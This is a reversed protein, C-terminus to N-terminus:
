FPQPMCSTVSAGLILNVVQFIQGQQQDPPMDAACAATTQQVLMHLVAPDTICALSAALQPGDGACALRPLLVNLLTNRIAALMEADPPGRSATELDPPGQASWNAHGNTHGDPRDESRQPPM